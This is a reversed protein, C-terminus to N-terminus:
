ARGSIRGCDQLMFGGGRRDIRSEFERALDELAHRVEDDTMQRALRRCREAQAADIADQEDMTWRRVWCGM